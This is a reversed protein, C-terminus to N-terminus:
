DVGYTEPNVQTFHVIDIQETESCTFQLQKSVSESHYYENTTTHGSVYNRLQGTVFLQIPSQNGATRIRHFSWSDVFSCIAKNIRPIFIYHLCFLQVEDILDLLCLHKLLYFLNYFVLICGQFLDRWWREIRQNHVSRGVIVSSRGCGRNQLMYSAVGVNEGGRDCRVRNPLGYRHVADEFSALVTDSLNNASCTCFVPLRSYGDIGAHIVLRWRIILPYLLLM